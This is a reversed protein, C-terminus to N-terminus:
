SLTIQEFRHLIHVLSQMQKWQQTSLQPLSQHNFQFEMVAIREVIFRDLMYYTSNWRTVIDQILKLSPLNHELQIAKFEQSAGPSKRYYTAIDKCTKIISKIGPQEFISHNIILQTTHLFCSLRLHETEFHLELNEIGAIMNSANDTVIHHIKSTPINYSKMVEDAMESINVGTHKTPFHKANLVLTNHEFDSSLTHGTFSLFSHEASKNTWIDLTLSLYSCNDVVHQVKARIMEELQPMITNTMFSRSCLPYYPHCGNILKVFRSDDLLNYAVNSGAIYEAIAYHIPWSKKDKLGWRQCDHLTRQSNVYLPVTGSLDQTSGMVIMNKKIKKPQIKQAAKQKSEKLLKECEVPQCRKSHTALNTNKKGKGCKVEKGCKKCTDGIYLQRIYSTQPAM